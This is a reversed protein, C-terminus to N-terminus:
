PVTVSRYKKRDLRRLHELAERDADKELNLRLTTTYFQKM